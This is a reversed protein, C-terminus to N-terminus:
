RCVVQGPQGADLRGVVVHQAADVALAGVLDPLRVPSRSWRSGPRSGALCAPGARAARDLQGDVAVQLVLHLADEASRIRATLASRDAGRDHEVDLGALHERLRAVRDVVRGFGNAELGDSRPSSAVPEHDVRARDVLRDDEAGRQLLAHDRRVRRDSTVGVIVLPSASAVRSVWRARSPRGLHRQGPM